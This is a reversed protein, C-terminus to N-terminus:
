IYYNGPKVENLSSSDLINSSELVNETKQSPTDALQTFNPINYQNPEYYQFQEVNNSQNQQINQNSQYSNNISQQDNWNKITNPNIICKNFKKNKCIKKNQQQWQICKYIRHNLLYKDMALETCLYILITLIIYSSIYAVCPMIYWKYIGDYHHQIYLYWITFTSVTYLLNKNKYLNSEKRLDNKM